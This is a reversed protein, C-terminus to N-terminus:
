QRAQEDGPRQLPEAGAADHGYIRRQDAEDIRASQEAAAVAMVRQHDRGGERQPRGDCGADQSNARPGPQERDVNGEAQDRHADAQFGQRRRGPGHVGEIEEARQQCCAAETEEDDADAAGGV